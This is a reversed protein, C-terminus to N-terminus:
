DFGKRLRQVPKNAGRYMWHVRYFSERGKDTLRLSQSLSCLYCNSGDFGRQLHVALLRSKATQWASLNHERGSYPLFNGGKVIRALHHTDAPFIFESESM